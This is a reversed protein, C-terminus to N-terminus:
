NTDTVVFKPVANFTNEEEPVAKPPTVSPQTVNIIDMKPTHGMKYFANWFVTRTTRDFKKLAKELSYKRGEAYTFQDGKFIAVVGEDIKYTKKLHRGWMNEACEISPVIQVMETIPKATGEAVKVLDKNIVCTTKEPLSQVKGNKDKKTKFYHKFRVKYENGAVNVRFM